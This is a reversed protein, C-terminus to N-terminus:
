RVIVRSGVGMKEFLIKAVEKPVRVCGHSSGKRWVTGEHIGISGNFRMWYPMSAGRYTTGAPRSDSSKIGGKVITGADDVFSGYISSRHAEVKQSIKYSGTPTEHTDEKGTCVPFDMAITNDIYLRGRQPDLLIEIYSNAPDTNMIASGRWFDGSMAYGPSAIFQEFTQNANPKRPQTASEDTSSCAVLLLPLLLSLLKLKM